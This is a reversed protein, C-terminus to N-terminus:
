SQISIELSSTLRADAITIDGTMLWFRRPSLPRLGDVRSM